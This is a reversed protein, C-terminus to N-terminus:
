SLLLESYYDVMANIIIEGLEKIPKIKGNDLERLARYCKWLNHKDKKETGFIETYREGATLFGGLGGLTPYKKIAGEFNNELETNMLKLKSEDLVGLAAAISHEMHGAHGASLVISAIMKAIKRIDGGLASLENTLKKSRLMIEGAYEMIDNTTSIILRRLNLTKRVQDTFDVLSNNGGHGTIIFINNSCLDQEQYIKIHFKLFNILREVLEKLPIDKPAWDKAINADHDTAWPIHAVYRSGTKCSILHALRQSFLDDINRPLAYSHGEQPNGISFILWKGENKEFPGWEDMRGELTIKKLKDVM